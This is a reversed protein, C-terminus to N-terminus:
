GMALWVYEGLRHNSAAARAAAAVTDEGAIAPVGTDALFGVGAGAATSQFSLVMEGTALGIKKSSGTIWLSIRGM